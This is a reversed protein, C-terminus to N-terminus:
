TRTGTGPPNEKLRSLPNTANFAGSPQGLELATHHQVDADEKEAGESRKDACPQDAAGHERRRSPMHM